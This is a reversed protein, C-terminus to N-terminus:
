AAGLASHVAQLIDAAAPSAAVAVPALGRDQLHRATTLGIAVVPASLGPESATQALYADAISPSTLVVLDLGARVLVEVQGPPLTARRTEYVAVSEFSVGAAALGAGLEPRPVRALFATVKQAGASVLAAALGAGGGTRISVDARLGYSELAAATAPGVAAIRLGSLSRADANALLGAGFARVGNASTFALFEGPEPKLGTLWQAIPSPSLNVCEILPTAFPRAGAERLADCLGGARGQPRPM